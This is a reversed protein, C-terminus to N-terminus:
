ASHVSIQRVLDFKEDQTLFDFLNNRVEVKLSELKKLNEPTRDTNVKHSGGAPMISAELHCLAELRKWENYIGFQTENMKEM